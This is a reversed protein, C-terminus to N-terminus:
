LGFLASWMAGVGDLGITSAVIVAELAILGSAIRLFAMSDDETRVWRRLRGWASRRPAAVTGTAGDGPEVGTVVLQELLARSLEEGTPDPNEHEVAEFGLLNSDAPRVWWMWCDKELLEEVEIWTGRQRGTAQVEQQFARKVREM